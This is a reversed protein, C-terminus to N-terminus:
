VGDHPHSQRGFQIRTRIINIVRSCSVCQHVKISEEKCGGFFVGMQALLPAASSIGFTITWRTSRRKLFFFLFWFAM